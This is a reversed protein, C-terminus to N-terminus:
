NPTPEPPWDVNWPFDSQQPIMRLTERYLAWALKGDPDLPSDALQTWDSNALKQNRISRVEAAKNDTREAIEEPTAPTSIWKEVWLSWQADGEKVATRELNITHDYPPQETPKVPYVGFSEATQDSITKTFSTNPNDRRLDTLTYPYRKLTGDPNILAYFM